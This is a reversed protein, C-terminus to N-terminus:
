AAHPVSQASATSMKDTDDTDGSFVQGSQGSSLIEKDNLTKIHDTPTLLGSWERVLPPCVGSWEQPKQDAHGPQNDYLLAKNLVLVSWREGDIQKRVSITDRSPESEAILGREKLRKRLSQPSVALGNGVANGLRHAVAYSVEPLLYIKDGALWGIREGGQYPSPDDLDLKKLHARKSALAEQLLNLFHQTPESESQHQDQADALHQLTTWAQKWWTHAQKKTLAKTQWAFILFYRWGLALSAINGATRRHQGSRAAAQRLEALESSWQAQIQAYRPALWQVFAALAQAYYGGRADQQCETLRKFNIAGPAVEILLLRAKLSQGKPSDEGTSIIFGRPPKAAKLRTDPGMRQRGTGNAQARFLREANRQLSQAHAANTPTWEDTVMVVDKAAFALAELANATNTWNAPLFRAEMMAGFHQQVLAAVSSKGQGTPGFLHISLESKALLSLWIASYLPIVIELPAVKLFSLSKQIAVKRDNGVPPAPLLYRSLQDDVQVEIGEVIGSAGIAGGSHLYVLQDDHRQWGLHAYVRHQPIDGSLLQIAARAHDRHMSGPYIIAQAGLHQAAWKMAAFHDAPVEFTTRHGALEAEM